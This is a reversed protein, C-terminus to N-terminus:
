PLAARETMVRRYARPSTGKLARFRRNFNSLNDYGCRVAIEAIPRDSEALLQCAAAIRLETIYDTMTRGLSRRFFRSFASPTMHALAAVDALRVPEAYSSQLHACVTDIRAPVPDSPTRSGPGTALQRSSARCLEDLIRLLSLTRAAPALGALATLRAAQDAAVDPATDFTLARDARDLLRAIGAFETRTLFDSGLFDRRFQVVVAEHATTGSASVYTHPVDPGILTLDGPHYNEISDAVIRTGSGRTILTLEAEPHYHWGFAFEEARRVHHQWSVEPRAGIHEREPRM